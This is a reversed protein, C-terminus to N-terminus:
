VAIGCTNSFNPLKAARARPNGHPLTLSLIVERFLRGARRADPTLGITSRRNPNSEAFQSNQRRFLSNRFISAGGLKRQPSAPDEIRTRPLRLRDLNM